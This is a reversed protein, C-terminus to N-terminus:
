VTVAWRMIAGITREMGQLERLRKWLRAPSKRYIKLLEEAPVWLLERRKRFRKDPDLQWQRNIASLDRFEFEVFFTRWDRINGGDAPMRTCYWDPHQGLTKDFLGTVLPVQTEVRSDSRWADRLDSAFYMTETEEIFERVATQQYSEGSSCGGGFDVLCGARRGSFTKHFLFCVEGQRVCFPIVSAGKSKAGCKPSM